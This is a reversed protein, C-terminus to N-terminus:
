DLREPQMGRMQEDLWARIDGQLAPSLSGQSLTGPGVHEDKRMGLTHRIQGGLNRAFSFVSAEDDEVAVVLGPCRIVRLGEHTPHGRGRRYHKQSRYLDRFLASPEDEPGWGHLGGLFRQRRRLGLRESLTVEAQTWHGDGRGPDVFVAAPVLRLFRHNNLMAYALLRAGLGQGLWAPPMGSQEEVFRQVPPLDEQALLAIHGLAWDRNNPSMGHGRMEPLWVDFGYRALLGALGEGNPSLWQRKNQFERHLLVVPVREGEWAPDRVRTVAIRVTTDPSIGPNMLYVDEYLDAAMETATLTVPFLQSSSQM